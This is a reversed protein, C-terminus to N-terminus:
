KNQKNHKENYYDKYSKKAPNKDGNFDRKDIDTKSAMKRLMDIGGVANVSNLIKVEDDSKANNRLREVEAELEAIREDREAIERHLREVEAELDGVEKDKEETTEELPDGGVNEVEVEVREEQPERIEVIKGSEVVITKGDPMVYEGDANEVEDGVRPEGEEKRLRLIAGTATELDQALKNIGLAAGLAEFAEKITMHKNHKTNIASKPALITDIFGLEKAREASVQRDERMLADMEERDCGTREVYLDLLRTEEESLDRAINELDNARAPMGLGNIFPYHFLFKANPHATRRGKAAACLLITASSSAEGIVEASIEKGTARLADYMTWAEDIMGGRCNIKLSIENDDEPISNIFEDVSVFSVADGAGFLRMMNATEEDLIDNYIRLQAM